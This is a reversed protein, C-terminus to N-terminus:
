RRAYRDFHDDFREELSQLLYLASVCLDYEVGRWLFSLLLVVVFFVMGFVFMQEGDIEALEVL